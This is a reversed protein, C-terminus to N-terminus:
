INILWINKFNEMINNEFYIFDMNEIDLNM